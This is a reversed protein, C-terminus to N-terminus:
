FLIHLPMFLHLITLLNWWFQFMWYMLEMGTGQLSEFQIMAVFTRMESSSFQLFFFLFNSIRFVAIFFLEVHSKAFPLKIWLKNSPAVLAM